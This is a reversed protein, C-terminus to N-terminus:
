PDLNGIRASENTADPWVVDEIMPRRGTVWQQDLSEDGKAEDVPAIQTHAAHERGEQQPYPVAM